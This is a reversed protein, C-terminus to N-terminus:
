RLSSAKPESTGLEKKCRSRWGVVLQEGQIEGRIKRCVLVNPGGSKSRMASHNSNRPVAELLKSRGKPDSEGDTSVLDLVRAEKVVLLTFATDAVSKDLREVREFSLVREEVEEKVLDSIKEM